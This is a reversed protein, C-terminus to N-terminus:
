PVRVASITVTIDVRNGVLMGGGDIAANWTLGYDRRDLVGGVEIGMREAGEDDRGHGLLEGSLEIQRTVDRITLDGRVTVAGGAGVAIATSTFSLRPHREVDFFDASRLHEDRAGLGTALSATAVSGHATLTGDAAVELAGEFSRFVGRVRALGAHRVRFELASHAPDVEWRGAPVVSSTVVAPQASM